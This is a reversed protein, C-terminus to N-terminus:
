QQEKRVVQGDQSFVIRTVPTFTQNQYYNYLAEALPTCNCLFGGFDRKMLEFKETAYHDAYSKGIVDCFLHYTVKNYIFKYFDIFQEIMM